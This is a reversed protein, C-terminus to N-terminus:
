GLGLMTKKREWYYAFNGDSDVFCQEVGLSRALDTMRTYRPIMFERFAKPSILSGGRYAMDEWFFLTTIPCEESAPSMLALTFETTFEMMDHVLGPDDADWRGKLAQWDGRTKVPYGIHEPM